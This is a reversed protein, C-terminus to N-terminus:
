SAPEILPSFNSVVRTTTPGGGDDNATSCPGLALLPGDHGM